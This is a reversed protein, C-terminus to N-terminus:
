GKTKLEAADALIQTMRDVLQHPDTLYGDVLMSGEFLQEAARTIFPDTSNRGALESLHQILAHQPNLELVRKPLDASKNMLRMIKEMHGSLQNEDSVLCAPSDVLRESARVDLVRDGLIEKFRSVLGEIQQPQEPKPQDAEESEKTLPKLDEIKAQDASVLPKDKYKGVSSFVIEDALQDLYLVEIKHKRFLELRPDRLLSERSPGSLYYIAKQEEPMAAVYDALSVLGQADTHRSSNFRLLEQFKERHAWDSHGEKFISGFTKWFEQYEATQKEALDHLKDLLKRTLNERIKVVVRNQQLTERSINLPLDDSEVVGRAFRLYQPLLDKNEPDILVRKVYLNLQVEGRGFGYTEPNSKPVFLLASFQIPSDVSYHLHFLPDQTDHGLLRYFEQYAERKVQSPPERWIATTQNVQEGGVLVPFPVFNSYKQIANKVVEADAFQAAESKLFIEIQTGRPRDESLTEVEYAGLGDSTWVVPKAEPRASRTTLVVREAAMFVSYFGVGFRGILSVGTQKEEGQRKALEQVFATAGSHAITGINAHVEEETMGIGSDSIVLRKQDGDTHTEIRIQLAEDPSHVAQGEVQWFRVKELADTANSVLERLFIDQSTYVSHILIDLLQKIEAKFEHSHATAM